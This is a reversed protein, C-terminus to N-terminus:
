PRGSYDGNVFMAQEALRRNLLGRVVKGGANVWLTFQTAASEYNGANLRKLLTSDGLGEAIVDDDEDLGVNFAFSCLADFQCQMVPVHVLRNVGEAVIHLDWYLLEEAETQTLQRRNENPLIVHGYGIDWVNGLADWHPVLSCGEWARVFDALPDSFDM